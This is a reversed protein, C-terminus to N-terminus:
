GDRARYGLVIVESSAPLSGRSLKLTSEALTRVPVVDKIFGMFLEAHRPFEYHMPLVVAPKLQSITLAIQDYTLTWHGDIPVMLVDPRGIRRRQEESLPGRLNGLHVICLGEARFVFITNQAPVEPATGGSGPVNKISLDGISVSVEVWEGGPTRGRLVRASGPVVWAQNHTPHENSITVVDPTLSPPHAANPDTLASTGGPTIILFSSHGVWQITVVRSAPDQGQLAVPIAQPASPPGHVFGPECLSEAATALRSLSVPVVMVLGLLIPLCCKRRDRLGHSM